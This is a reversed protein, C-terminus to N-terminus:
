IISLLDILGVERPHDISSEIDRDLGITLGLDEIRHFAYQRGLIKRVDNSGKTVSHIFSYYGQLLDRREAIIDIADEDFEGAEPDDIMLTLSPSFYAQIAVRLVPFKENIKRLKRTQEKAKSHASPSFGNTRGKAEIVIWDNHENLGILDPQSNGDLPAIGGNQKFRSLHFLWPTNLLQAAVLKAPMMGVFYSTAGKETPDLNDYLTSKEFRSSTQCLNAYVMYTRVIADSVSYWGYSFLETIGPKEVTIASWVIEEWSANLSNSGTLLPGL